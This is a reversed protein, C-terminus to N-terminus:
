FLEVSMYITVAKIRATFYKSIWLQPILTDAHSSVDDDGTIIISSLVSHLYSCRYPFSLPHYWLLVKHHEWWIHVVISIDAVTHGFIEALPTITYLSKTDIFHPCINCAYGFVFSLTLMVKSEKELSLEEFLYADGHTYSDTISAQSCLYEGFDM